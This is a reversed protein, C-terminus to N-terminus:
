TLNAISFPSAEEAIRSMSKEPSAHLIIVNSGRFLRIFYLNLQSM